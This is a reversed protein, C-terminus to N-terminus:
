TIRRRDLRNLPSTGRVWRSLPKTQTIGDDFRVTVEYRTLGGVHRTATVTATGKAPQRHDYVRDGVKVVESTGFPKVGAMAVVM